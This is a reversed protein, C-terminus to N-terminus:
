KKGFRLLLCYGIKEESELVFGNSQIVRLLEEREMYLGCNKGGPNIVPENMLLKGDKKLSEHISALMHEKKKFHHFANRIIIKDFQGPALKTSKKKGEVVEFRYPNLYGINKIIKKKISELYSWHLENVSIDIDQSLMGLLISFTGIGAGIEAVRDGKRIDYFAIEQFIPSAAYISYPFEPKLVEEIILALLESNEVIINIEQEGLKEAIQQGEYEDQVAELM